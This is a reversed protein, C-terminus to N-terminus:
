HVPFYGQAKLSGWVSQSGCPELGTESLFDGEDELSGLILHTKHLGASEPFTRLPCM